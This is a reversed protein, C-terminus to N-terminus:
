LNQFMFSNSVITKFEYNSLQNSSLDIIKLYDFKFYKEFLSSLSNGTLNQIKM